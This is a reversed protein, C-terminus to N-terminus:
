STRTSTRKEIEILLEFFDVLREFYERAQNDSIKEGSKKEYWEKFSAITETRSNM